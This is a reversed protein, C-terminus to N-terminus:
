VDDVIEFYGLHCGETLFYLKEGKVNKFPTGIYVKNHFFSLTGLDANYLMGIKCDAVRLHQFIYNGNNLSFIKHDMM